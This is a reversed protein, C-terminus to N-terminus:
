QLRRSLRNNSPNYHDGARSILDNGSEPTQTDPLATVIYRSSDHRTWEINAAPLMQKKEGFDRDLQFDLM